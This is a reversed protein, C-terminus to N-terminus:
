REAGLLARWHPWRRAFADALAKLDIAYRAEFRAEGIRHQEARHAQCL